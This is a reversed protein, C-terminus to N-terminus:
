ESRGDVTVLWNHLPALKEAHQAVTEVVATSTAVDPPLTPAEVWLSRYLLLDARPHEKDYGNPVRKGKEAQPEYGEDIVTQLLKGLETGLTDDIVADRFATLMQKDFGYPMGIYLTLGVQTLTFHFGPNEKPKKRAGQWLSFGQYDKYPTKDKAFRLDRYIRMLSREPDAELAPFTPQLRKALADVLQQTPNHVCDYYDNKHVEFWDRDMGSELLGKFFSFAGEPYGNFTTM